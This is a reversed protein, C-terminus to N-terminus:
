SAVEETNNNRANIETLIRAIGKRIVRIQLPSELGSVAHQFKLKALSGREENLKEHLDGVSYEKLDVSKM